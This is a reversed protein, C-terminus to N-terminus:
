NFQSQPKSDPFSKLVGFLYIAPMLSFLFMIALGFATQNIILLLITGVVVYGLFKQIKKQSDIGDPYVVKLMGAVIIGGIISLSSMPILHGRWWWIYFTGAMMVGGFIRMYVAEKAKRTKKAKLRKNHELL